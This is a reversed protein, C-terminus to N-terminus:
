GLKPLIGNSLLAAAVPLLPRKADIEFRALLGRPRPGRSFHPLAAHNRFRM